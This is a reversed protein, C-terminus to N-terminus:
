RAFASKRCPRDRRGGWRWRGFATASRRRRLSQRHCRHSDRAVPRARQKVDSPTHLRLYSRQSVRLRPPRPSRHSSSPSLLADSHPLTRKHELKQGEGRPSKTKLHLLHTRGSISIRPDHVLTETSRPRPTVATHTPQSPRPQGERAIVGPEMVRLHLRSDGAGFRIQAFTAEKGRIRHTLHLRIEIGRTLGQGSGSTHGLLRSNGFHNEDGKRSPNQGTAHHNSSTRDDPSAPWSRPRSPRCGRLDRSRYSRAPLASSVARRASALPGQAVPPRTREPTLPLRALLRRPRRRRAQPPLLRPAQLNTVGDEKGLKGRVALIGNRNIIEREKEYLQPTVIVDLRGTEDELGVFVFGKATGPRQRVIVVGAATVVSATACARTARLEEVTRVGLTRLWERLHRMPHGELDFGTARHGAAHARHAGARADGRRTPSWRWRGAAAGRACSAWCRGCRRGRGARSGRASRGRRRWRACGRRATSARWWTPRRSSPGGGAGGEAAGGDGRGARPRLAPRHPRRPHRFHPLASHTLAPTLAGSGTRFSRGAGGRVGGCQVPCERVGAGPRVEASRWRAIGRRIVALDAPRVEVGHAKADHILTSVPYFGMPQANLIACWTSPPTTCGCGRAPTRWCRSPSPTAEPFTYSACAELWGLVKEAAEGEVGRAAMGARIPRHRPADGRSTRKRSM